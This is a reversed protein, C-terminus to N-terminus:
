VSRLGLKNLRLHEGPAANWWPCRAGVGFVFEEAAVRVVASAGAQDTICRAPGPLGILVKVRGFLEVHEVTLELHVSQGELGVM